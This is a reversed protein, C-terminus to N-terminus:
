RSNTRTPRAIPRGALLDAPGACLVVILNTLRVPVVFAGFYNVSRALFNRGTFKRKLRKVLFSARGLRAPTLPPPPPIGPPSGPKPPPYEEEYHKMM